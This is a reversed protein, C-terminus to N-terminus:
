GNAIGFKDLLADFDQKALNKAPIPLTELAATVPEEPAQYGVFAAVLLHVPPHKRWYKSLAEVQPLDV